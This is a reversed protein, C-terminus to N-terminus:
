RNENQLEKETQAIIMNLWNLRFKQVDLEELEAWEAVNSSEFSADYICTSRDLDKNISEVIKQCIFNAFGEKDAKRDWHGLESVCVAHCIYEEKELLGSKYVGKVEDFDKCLIERAAKLIDLHKQEFESTDVKPYPPPLQSFEQVEVGDIEMFCFVGGQAFWGVLKPDVGEPVDVTYWHNQSDVECELTEIVTGTLGDVIKVKAGSNGYVLRKVEIKAM